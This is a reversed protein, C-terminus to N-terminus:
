VNGKDEDKILSKLFMNRGFIRRLLRYQEVTPRGISASTRLRRTRIPSGVIIGGEGFSFIDIAGGLSIKYADVEAPTVLCEDYNARDSMIIHGLNSAKALFSPMGVGWAGNWPDVEECYASEAVAEEVEVTMCVELSEFVKAAMHWEPHQSVSMAVVEEVYYRSTDKFTFAHDAQGPNASEYHRVDSCNLARVTARAALMRRKNGVIEAIDRTKEIRDSIPTLVFLTSPQSM